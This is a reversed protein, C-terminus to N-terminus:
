CGTVFCRQAARTQRWLRAWFQALGFILTTTVVVVVGGVVDREHM